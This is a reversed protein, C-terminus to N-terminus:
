CLHLSLASILPCQSASAPIWQAYLASMVVGEILIDDLNDPFAATIDLLLKVMALRDAKEGVVAHSM